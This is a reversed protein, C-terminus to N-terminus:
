ILSACIRYIKCFIESECDPYLNICHVLYPISLFNAFDEGFHRTLNIVKSPSNFFFFFKYIPM